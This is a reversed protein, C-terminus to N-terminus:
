EEGSKRVIKFSVTQKTKSKSQKIKYHVLAKVQEFLCEFQEEDFVRLYELMDTFSETRPHDSLGMSGGQVLCLIDKLNEEPVLELIRPLCREFAGPPWKWINTLIEHIKGPKGAPISFGTM